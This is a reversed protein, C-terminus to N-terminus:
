LFSTKVFMNSVVKSEVNRTASVAASVLKSDLLEGLAKDYASVAANALLRILECVDMSALVPQAVRAAKVAAEVAPRLRKKLYSMLASTALAPLHPELQRRMASSVQEALSEIAKRRESENGAQQLRRLTPALSTKLADGTDRYLDARFGKHQKALSALMKHERLASIKDANPDEMHLSQVCPRTVRSWARELFGGGLRSHM